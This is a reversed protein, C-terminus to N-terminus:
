PVVTCPPSLVSHKEAPQPVTKLKDRPRLGNISATGVKPLVPLVTERKPFLRVPVLVTVKLPVVAVNVTTESVLMWAWTGAPAVVPVIATVVGLPVSDLLAGNWITFYDLVILPYVLRGAPPPKKIWRRMTFSRIGRHGRYHLTKGAGRARGNNGYIDYQSISFRPQQMAGCYLRAM